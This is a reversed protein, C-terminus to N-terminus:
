GFHTAFFYGGAAGAGISVVIGVGILVPLIGGNIQELSSNDLQNFNDLSHFKDM